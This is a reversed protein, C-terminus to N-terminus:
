KRSCVIRWKLAEDARAIAERALHGIHPLSNATTSGEGIGAIVALAGRMERVVARLRETEGLTANLALHLSNTEDPWQVPHESM